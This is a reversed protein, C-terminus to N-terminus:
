IGGLDAEGFPTGAPRKMLAEIRYFREKATDADDLRNETPVLHVEFTDPIPVVLREEFQLIPYMERALEDSIVIYKWAWRSGVYARWQPRGQEDNGHPEIGSIV